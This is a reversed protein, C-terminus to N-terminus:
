YLSKKLLWADGFYKWSLTKIKSNLHFITQSCYVCLRCLFFSNKVLSPHLHSHCKRVFTHIIRYQALLLPFMHLTKHCMAMFLLHFMHLTKHCMVMFIIADITTNNQTLTQWLLNNFTISKELTVFLKFGCNLTHM